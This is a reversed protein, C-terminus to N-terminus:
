LNRFAVEDDVPQTFDNSHEAALDVSQQTPKNQGPISTDIDAYIACFEDAGACPQSQGQLVYGRPDTNPYGSAPNYIFWAKSLAEPAQRNTFASAAVALLLALMPIILKKM